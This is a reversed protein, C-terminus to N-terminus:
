RRRHAILCQVRQNTALTVAIWSILRQRQRTLSNDLTFTGMDQHCRHKGEGQDERFQHHPWLAPCQHLRQNLNTRLWCLRHHGFLPELMHPRNNKFQLLNKMAVELLFTMLAAMMTLSHTCSTLFQYNPQRNNSSTQHVQRHHPSQQRYHGARVPSLSKLLGQHHRVFSDQTQHM